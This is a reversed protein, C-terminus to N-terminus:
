SLKWSPPSWCGTMTGQSSAGVDPKQPLFFDHSQDMLKEVSSGVQEIQRADCWSSDEIPRNKRKVLYQLYAKWWTRKAVQTDLISEIEPPQIYPMQRM